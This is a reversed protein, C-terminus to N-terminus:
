AKGGNDWPCAKDTLYAEALKPKLASKILYQGCSEFTRGHATSVLQECLRRLEPPLPAGAQLTDMISWAQKRYREVLGSRAAAFDNWTADPLKRQVDKLTLWPKKELGKAILAVRKQTADFPATEAPKLPMQVPESPKCRCVQGAKLWCKCRPCFSGGAAVHEARAARDEAWITALLRGLQPNTIGGCVAAIDQPIEVGLTYGM